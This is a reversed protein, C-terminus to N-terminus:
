NILGVSEAEAGLDAASRCKVLAYFGGAILTIVSLAIM